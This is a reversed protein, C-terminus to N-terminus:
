GKPTQDDDDSTKKGAGNKKAPQGEFEGADTKIKSLKVKLVPKGSLQLTESPGTLTVKAGLGLSAVRDFLAGEVEIVYLSGDAAAVWADIEDPLYFGPPAAERLVGDAATTAPKEGKALQPAIRRVIGAEREFRAKVGPATTDEDGPTRLFLVIKGEMTKAAPTGEPDDVPTLSTPRGSEIKTPAIPAPPGATSGPTNGTSSGTSSADPKKAPAKPEDPFKLDFGLNPNSGGGGSSGGGGGGGYGGGYGYAPYAPYGPYGYAAAPNVANAIGTPTM